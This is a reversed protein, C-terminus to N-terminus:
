EGKLFNCYPFRLLQFLIDKLIYMLLEEGNEREKIEYWDITKSYFCHGKRMAIEITIPGDELIKVPRITTEVGDIIAAKTILEVANAYDM